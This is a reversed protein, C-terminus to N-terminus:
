TKLDPIKNKSITIVPITKHPNLYSNINKIKNRIVTNQNKLNYFKISSKQRQIKTANDTIGNLETLLYVYCLYKRNLLM